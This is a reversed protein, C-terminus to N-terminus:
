GAALQDRIAGATARLEEETFGGRIMSDHLSDGDTRPALHLHLQDIHGGFVYVHVLEAGIGEKLASTVSGIVEGFTRAEEGNLATIDPIHRKPELFSFGRV